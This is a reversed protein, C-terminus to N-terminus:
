SRVVFAAANTAAKQLCELCITSAESAVLTTAATLADAQDSAASDGLASQPSWTTTLQSSILTAGCATKDGDCAVPQPSFITDSAGTTIPFTGRCRPCVTMDGVRAIYKGNIDSTYDATIVTGGHSTRDGIVIIYKSM